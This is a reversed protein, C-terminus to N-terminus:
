VLRLPLAAISRRLIEDRSHGVFAEHWNDAPLGWRQHAIEGVRLSYGTSTAKGLKAVTETLHRPIAVADSWTAAMSRHGKVVTEVHIAALDLMVGGDADLYESAWREHWAAPMVSLDLIERCVTSEFSVVMANTGLAAAAALEMQIQTDACRGRAGRLGAEKGIPQEAVGSECKTATLEIDDLQADRWYRRLAELLYERAPRCKVEKESTVLLQVRPRGLCPDVALDRHEIVVPKSHARNSILLFSGFGRDQWAPGLLITPDYARGTIAERTVDGLPEVIM